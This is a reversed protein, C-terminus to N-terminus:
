LFWKVLTVAGVVLCVVSFAVGLGISVEIVYDLASKHHPDQYLM